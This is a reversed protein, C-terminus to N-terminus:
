GNLDVLRNKASNVIASKEEESKRFWDKIEGTTRGCGICTNNANIKCIKTCPSKITM